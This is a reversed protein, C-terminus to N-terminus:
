NREQWKKEGEVATQTLERSCSGVGSSSVIRIGRRGLEYGPLSADRFEVLEFL